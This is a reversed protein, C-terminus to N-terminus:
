PGLWWMQTRTLFFSSLPFPITWKILQEYREKNWSHWMVMYLQLLFPCLSYNTAYMADRCLILFKYDFSFSHDAILFFSLGVYCIPCFPSCIAMILFVLISYRWSPQILWSRRWLLGSWFRTVKLNLNLCINVQHIQPNTVQAPNMQSVRRQEM